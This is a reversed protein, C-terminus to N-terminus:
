AIVRLEKDTSSCLKQRIGLSAIICGESATHSINDGHILFGSRGFTETEPKPLLRVTCKGRHPDDYCPGLTWDGVPIPGVNHISCCDPNNRCQGALGSYATEIHTDDHTIEGTSIKYQWTM